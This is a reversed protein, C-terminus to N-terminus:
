TNFSKRRRPPAKKISLAGKPTLQVSAGALTAAFAKGAALSKELGAGLAEIKELRIRRPESGGVRAIEGALLRLAVEAPERFLTKADYVGNSGSNLREAAARTASAVAEEMRGARRSLRAIESAGLGEEALAAALRRMRTRAFRPDANARDEIFTEGHAACYAILEAKSLGLLPRALFVGFRETLAAMGKLGSLGSGRLLRFLVTESQDDIHHATVIHDAGIERAREALLRYRAERALEQIRSSPKPGRWAIIHHKFGRRRAHEGVAEAEARAEQRLGHDITAVEVPPRGGGGAWLATMILLATSDPGGSVALLLGKAGALPALLAAVRAEDIAPTQPKRRL